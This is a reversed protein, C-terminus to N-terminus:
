RPPRDRRARLRSTREEGLWSQVAVRLGRRAGVEVVRMLTDAYSTSRHLVGAGQSRSSHMEWLSRRWQQTSVGSADVLVTVRDDVHPVVGARLVRRTLDYDAVVRFRTDFGNMDTLLRRSMFAGQHFVDQRGGHFGAPDIRSAALPRTPRGASDVFRVRTRLWDVGPSIRARVWALEGAGAYVDGANLYQLLRGRALRIGKNMADYIGDDPESVVAIRENGRAASLAAERTGDDSAGDIILHEVDAAGQGAVSAMTDLLAQRDNRVVTVVTLWPDSM